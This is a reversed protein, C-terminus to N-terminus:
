CTILTLVVKHLVMKDDNVACDDCENQEPAQQLLAMVHGQQTEMAADM